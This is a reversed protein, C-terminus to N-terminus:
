QSEPRSLLRDVKRLFELEQKISYRKRHQNKKAPEANPLSQTPASVPFLSVPSPLPPPNLQPLQRVCPSRENLGIDPTNKEDM